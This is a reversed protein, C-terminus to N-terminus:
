YVAKVSMSCGGLSRMILGPYLPYTPSSATNLSRLDHAIKPALLLALALIGFRNVTLMRYIHPLDALKSDKVFARVLLLTFNPVLFYKCNDTYVKLWPLETYPIMIQWNPEAAHFTTNNKVAVGSDVFGTFNGLRGCFKGEKCLRAITAAQHLNGPENFFYKDKAVDWWQPDIDGDNNVFLIDTRGITKCFHQIAVTLVEFSSVVFTFNEPLSKILEAALDVLPLDPIQDFNFQLSFETDQVTDRDAEQFPILKFNNTYHWAKLFDTYNIDTISLPMPISLKISPM